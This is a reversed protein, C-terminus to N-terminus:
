TQQSQKAFRPAGFVPKCESIQKGLTSLVSQPRVSGFVDDRHSLDSPASPTMLVLESIVVDGQFSGNCLNM